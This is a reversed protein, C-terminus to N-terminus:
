VTEGTQLDDALSRIKEETLGTLRAIESDPYDSALMNKAVTLKGKLEGELKGKLEGALEGFKYDLEELTIEKVTYKEKDKLFADISKKARKAYASAFQLCYIMFIRNTKEFNQAFEKIQLGASKLSEKDNITDLLIRATFLM